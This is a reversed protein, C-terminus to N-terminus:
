RWYRRNYNNRNRRYRLYMMILIIAIPVVVRIIVLVMEVGRQRFNYLLKEIFDISLIYANAYALKM